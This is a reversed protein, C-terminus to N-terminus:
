NKDLVANNLIYRFSLKDYLFLNNVISFVSDFYNNIFNNKLNGKLILNVNPLQKDLIKLRNRGSEFFKWYNTKALLGNLLCNMQFYPKSPTINLKITTTMNNM